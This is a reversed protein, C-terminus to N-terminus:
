LWAISYGRGGTRRLISDQKVNSRLRRCSHQDPASASHSIEQVCVTKGYINVWLVVKGAQMLLLTLIDTARNIKGTGPSADSSMGMAAGSTTINGFSDIRTIKKVAKDFDVWTAPPTAIGAQNLLDKNYYLALSDVSLPLAYIKGDSVFDASVVDMFQDQIQKPTLIPAQNTSLNDMPVPMLKDFHKPLWTNHVLFIDPGNGTALADMLDNEYSDVTLKKYIIDKVRSNRKLYESITKAMVDSDDFLGWVELRVEYNTASSNKCGCGSLLVLSLVLAFSLFILIKKRM